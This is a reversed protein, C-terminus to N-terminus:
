YFLIFQNYDCYQIFIIFFNILNSKSVLSYPYNEMKFDKVVIYSYCSLITYM